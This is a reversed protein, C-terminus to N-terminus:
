RLRLAVEILANSEHGGEIVVFCFPGEKARRREIRGTGHGVPADGHRVPRVDVVGSDVFRV